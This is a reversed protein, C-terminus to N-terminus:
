VDAQLEDFIANIGNILQNRYNSSFPEGAQGRQDLYDYRPLMYDLFDQRYDEVWGSATTRNVTGRTEVDALIDRADDAWFGTYALADEVFYQYHAPTGFQHNAAMQDERSEEAVEYAAITDSYAGAWRSAVEATLDPPPDPVPAAPPSSGGGGCATLLAALLLLARM